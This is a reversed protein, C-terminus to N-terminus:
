RVALFMPSTPIPTKPESQVAAIALQTHGIRISSPVPLPALGNIRTDDLYTGNRGMDEIFLQSGIVHIICHRQSIALDHSLRLNNGVDRGISFAPGYVPLEMGGSQGNLAVIFAAPKGSSSM